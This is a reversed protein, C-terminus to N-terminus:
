VEPPPSYIEYSGLLPVGQNFVSRKNNIESRSTHITHASYSFILDVEKASSDEDDGGFVDKEEESTNSSILKIINSFTKKDQTIKLASLEALFFSMNIFILGTVLTM